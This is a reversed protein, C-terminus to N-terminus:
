YYVEWGYVYGVRSTICVFSELHCTNFLFYICGMHLLDVECEKCTRVEVIPLEKGSCRYQLLFCLHTVKLGDLV